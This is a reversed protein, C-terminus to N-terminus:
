NYNDAYRWLAMLYEFPHEQYLCFVLLLELPNLLYLEGYGCAELYNNTTEEFDNRLEFFRKDASAKSTNEANSIDYECTCLLFSSLLIDTRTIADRRDEIKKKLNSYPFGPFRILKRDILEKISEPIVIDEFPAMELLSSITECNVAKLLRQYRNIMNNQNAALLKNERQTNLLERKNELNCKEYLASELGTLLYKFEEFHSFRNKKKISPQQKLMTLYSLFQEDDRDYSDRFDLFSDNLMSTSKYDAEVQDIKINEYDNLWKLMGPYQLNHKLCYYYIMEKYDRVYFDNTRFTKTLMVSAADEDMNLGFCFLFITQRDIDTVPSILWSGLRQSLTTTAGPKLSGINKMHNEAFAHKIFEYLEEDSIDDYNQYTVDSIYRKLFDGLTHPRELIEEFIEAVADQNGQRVSKQLELDRTFETLKNSALLTFDISNIPIDNM